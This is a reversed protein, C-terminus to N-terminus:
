RGKIIEGLENVIPVGCFDAWKNRFSELYNMNIPAIEGEQYGTRHILALPLASYQKALKADKSLHSLYLCASVSSFKTKGMFGRTRLLHLLVEQVISWDLLANGLNVLILLGAAKSLNLASKTGRVQRNAEKVMREIPGIVLGFAKRQLEIKDPQNEIIKNFPMQGYVTIGRDQIIQEALAQLKETTDVQLSKLEAVIEKGKLLYDANKFSVGEASDSLVVCDSQQRVFRSFKEEFPNLLPKRQSM